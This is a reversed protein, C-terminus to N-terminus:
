ATSQQSRKVRQDRRLSPFRPIAQATSQRSREASASFARGRAQSTQELFRLLSPIASEATRSALRQAFHTKGRSITKKYPFFEINSFKRSREIEDTAQRGWAARIITEVLSIDIPPMRTQEHANATETFKQVASIYRVCLATLKRALFSAKEPHM